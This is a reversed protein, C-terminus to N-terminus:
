NELKDKSVNTIDGYEIFIELYLEKLEPLSRIDEVTLEREEGGFDLMIPNKIEKVIKDFYEGQVRNEGYGLSLEEEGSLRHLTITMKKNGAFTPTFTHDGLIKLTM